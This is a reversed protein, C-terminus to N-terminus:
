FLNIIVRLYLFSNFQKEPNTLPFAVDFSVDFGRPGYFRLGVGASTLYTPSDESPVPDNTYVGGHDIFTLLQLTDKWKKKGFPSIKDKIGPVPLYWETNIYYGIDGSIVAAPYGRVSGVGGITIQESLPIKNFTGQSLATFLLSGDFPLHQVRQYGINLIFYRGGAGARSCDPDIPSSGNFIYPIGANFAANIFNRGQFPDQHELNIGLTAVRLKDYSATQNSIFNKYQKISFQTAINFSFTRTRILPRVFSLTSVESWCALDLPKFKQIYSHTFLYSLDCRTGSGNLPVSYVPNFYYMVAPAGISSMLTFRDGSTLLNGVQLESSLQNYTLVDSGWNNYGINMHAPFQDQIQIILDVSGLETGKKLIAEATCDINENILLLAKMLDNYNLPKGELSAVYKKLFSTKYSTNGVIQIDNLFGELVRLCLTNNEVVQVPPYVWTLIYGKRAYLCDLEKCLTIVDRGTLEKHLYPYITKNIEDASLLTNNELYIHDIYASIGEPLHLQKEPIDIELLPISKDAPLERVNFEQQIQQEVIGASASSPGGASRSAWGTNAAFLTLLGLYLPHAKSM